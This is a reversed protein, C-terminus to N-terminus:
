AVVEIRQKLHSLLSSLVGGIQKELKDIRAKLADIDSKWAIDESWYQNDSNDISGIIRAKHSAWHVNLIAITNSTGFAIGSGYGGITMGKESSIDHFAQLIKTENKGNTFNSIQLTENNPQVTLSTDTNVKKDIEDKNAFHFGNGYVDM